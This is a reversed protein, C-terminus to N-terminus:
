SFIGHEIRGLVTLVQDLGVDTDLLSLPTVGGLATVPGTLWRAANERDGLVDSANAIVRALRVIRESETAPLRGGSAKRRAATRKPIGLATLLQEESLDLVKATITVSRFPLGKRIAAVFDFGGNVRSGLVHSGGLLSSIEKGYTM